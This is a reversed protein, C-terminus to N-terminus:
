RARAVAQAATVATESHSNGSAPLARWTRSASPSPAPNAPATVIALRSTTSRCGRASHFWRRPQSSVASDTPWPPASNRDAQSLPSLGLSPSSIPASTGAAAM